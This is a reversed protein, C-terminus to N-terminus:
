FKIMDMFSQFAIKERSYGQKPDAFIGSDSHVWKVIRTPFNLDGALILDYGLHEYQLDTMFSEIRHVIDKFKPLSFNPVPPRYIVM